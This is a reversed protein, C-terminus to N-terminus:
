FMVPGTTSNRSRGEPCNRSRECGTFTAGRVTDRAGPEASDRSQDLFLLGPSREPVARQLLKRGLDLHVVRDLSREVVSWQAHDQVTERRTRSGVLVLFRM